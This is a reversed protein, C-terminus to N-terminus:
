CLLAPEACTSQSGRLCKRGSAWLLQAPTLLSLSQSKMVKLAGAATKIGAGGGEASQSSM